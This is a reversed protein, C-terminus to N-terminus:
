RQLSDGVGIIRQSHAVPLRPDHFLTCRKCFKRLFVNFFFDVSPDTDQSSLLSLQLFETGTSTQSLYFQELTAADALDLALTEVNSM